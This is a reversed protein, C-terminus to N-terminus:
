DQRQVEAHPLAREGPKSRPEGLLRCRAQRASATMLVAPSLCGGAYLDRSGKGSRRRISGGSLSTCLFAELRRFSIHRKIDGRGWNRGRPIEGERKGPETRVEGTKRTSEASAGSQLSGVRVGEEWGVEM